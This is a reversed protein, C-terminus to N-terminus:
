SVIAILEYLMGLAEISTLSEPSQKSVELNINYATFIPLILAGSFFYKPLTSKSLFLFERQIERRYIPCYWLPTIM